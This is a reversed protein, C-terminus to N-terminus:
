PQLWHDLDRGTLGSLLAIDERFREILEARMAPDLGGPDADRTNLRTLWGTLSLGALGLRQKAAAARALLPQPIRRLREALWASRLQRARNIEHFDQNGDDRAGIFELAERYIRGPNAALDEFFFFQIQCAPFCDLLRQVHQGLSGAWSYDLRKPERCGLPYPLRGSKRHEQAQWAAEFSGLNEDGLFVLHRYYSYLYEPTSRLMVIIRAQPNFARLNKAASESLLYLPSAEGAALHHDTVAGFIELYQERDKIRGPVKLDDCFYHLEKPSSMYVTPNHRLYESLATTGCKPAGFICFSPIQKPNERGVSPPHMAITPHLSEATRM